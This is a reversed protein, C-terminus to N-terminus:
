KWPKWTYMSHMYIYIYINIRVCVHMYLFSYMLVSMEFIRARAMWIAGSLMDVGYNFRTSLTLAVFELSGFNSLRNRTKM